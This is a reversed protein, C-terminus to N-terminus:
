SMSWAQSRRRGYFLGQRGPVEIREQAGPHHGTAHHNSRNSIARWRGISFTVPAGLLSLTSM